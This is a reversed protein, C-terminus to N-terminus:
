LSIEINNNIDTIIFTQTTLDAITGMTIQHELLCYDDYINSAGPYNFQLAKQIDSLKKPNRSLVESIEPFVVLLYINKFFNKFSLTSFIRSEYHAPVSDIIATGNDKQSAMIVLQSSFQKAKLIAIIGLHNSIIKWDESGPTLGLDNKTINILDQSISELIIDNNIINKEPFLKKALTSKGSNAVGCMMVLSHPPIRIKSPNWIINNSSQNDM